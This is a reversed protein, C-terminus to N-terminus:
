LYTLRSHLPPSHCTDNERLRQGSAPDPIVRSFGSWDGTAFGVVFTRNLRM